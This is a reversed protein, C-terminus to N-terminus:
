RCVLLLWHSVHCQVDAYSGDEKCEPVFLGVKNGKELMLARQAECRAKEICKGRHKFEVPHGQCKAREIECRSEYTRGDNGCVPVSETNCEMDCKHSPTDSM